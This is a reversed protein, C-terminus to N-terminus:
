GYVRAPEIELGDWAPGMTMEEPVNKEKKFDACYEEIETHLHNHCIHTL